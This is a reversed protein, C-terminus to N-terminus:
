TVDARKRDMEKILWAYVLRSQKIFLTSEYYARALAHFNKVRSSEFIVVYFLCIGRM